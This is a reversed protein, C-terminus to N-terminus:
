RADATRTAGATTATGSTRSTKSFGLDAWLRDFVGPTAAYGAAGGARVTDPAASVDTASPATQATAATTGVLILCLSATAFFSKTM